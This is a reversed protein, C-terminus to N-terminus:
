PAYSYKDLFRNGKKDGYNEKIVYYFLHLETYFYHFYKFLFLQHNGRLTGLSCQIGSGRWGFNQFLNLNLPTSPKREIGVVLCLWAPSVM